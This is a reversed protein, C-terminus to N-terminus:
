SNIPAKWTKFSISEGTKAVAKLESPSWGHLSPQEMNDDIELSTTTLKQIEELEHIVNRAPGSDLRLSALFLPSLVRVATGLKEAGLLRGDVRGYEKVIDGDDMSDDDDGFNSDAMTSWARAAAGRDFEVTLAALARAVSACRHKREILANVLQRCAVIDM